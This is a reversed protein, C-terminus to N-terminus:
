RNGNYLEEEEVKNARRASIIRFTDPEPESFCILLVCNVAYGLLIYREDDLNSHIDDYYEKRLPDFFARAAQEFTIGHKKINVQNKREDWQFQM